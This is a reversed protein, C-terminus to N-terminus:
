GVRSAGARAQLWAKFTPPPYMAEYEDDELNMHWEDERRELWSHRWDRFETVLERHLCRRHCAGELPM